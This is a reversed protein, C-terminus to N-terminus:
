WEKCLHFYIKKLLFIPRISGGSPDLPTSLAHLELALLASLSIYLLNAGCGQFVYHAHNRVMALFNLFVRVQFYGSVLLLM